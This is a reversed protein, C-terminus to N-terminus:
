EISSNWILWSSFSTTGGVLKWPLYYVHLHSISSALGRRNETDWPQAPSSMPLLGRLIDSRDDPVRKRERDPMGRWEGRELWFQFGVEERRGISKIVKKRRNGGFGHSSHKHKQPTHTSSSLFLSLSHTHTHTHRTHTKFYIHKDAKTLAKPHPAM